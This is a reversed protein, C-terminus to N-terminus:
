EGQTFLAGFDDSKPAPTSDDVFLDLGQQIEEDETDAFLALLEDRVAARLTRDDDDDDDGYGETEPEPEPEEPATDHEAKAYTITYTDETEEVNLIHKATPAMSAPPLPMKVAEPELGWRKARVALAHPNAPIAVASM